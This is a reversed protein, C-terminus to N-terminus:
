LIILEMIFHFSRIKKKSIQSNTKIAADMVKVKKNSMEDSLNFLLGSITLQKFAMERRWALKEHRCSILCQYLHNMVEFMELVETSKKKAVEVVYHIFGQSSSSMRLCMRTLTLQLHETTKSNKRCFEIIASSLKYMIYRCFSFFVSSFCLLIVISNMIVSKLQCHVIFMAM